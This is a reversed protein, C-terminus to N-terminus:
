KLKKLKKELESPTLPLSDFYGQMTNCGSDALIDSQEKSEVGEGILHLGLANCLAVIAKVIQRDEESSVLDAVFRQDIKVEDVAWEKLDRLSSLGMGFDDISIQFGANKIRQMNLKVEDVNDFLANESVEICLLEPSIGHKKTVTNILESMQTSRLHQLSINVSMRPIKFGADLWLRLQACCEELVFAEVQNILTSQEAVKIFETPPILGHQPHRWRLLVELGSLKNTKYDFQPQYVLFLLKEKLAHRIGQEMDLWQHAISNLGATYFEFSNRGNQKARYMALDAYLLLSEPDKTDDPYVSVGVSVTCYVREGHIDFPPEFATIIERVIRGGDQPSAGEMVMVFDDGGLRCLIDTSRACTSIREVAKILLADGADHGLKDNVKKFYDLDFFLLLVQKKARKAKSISHELRQRFLNRNPLGTLEDHTALFEVRSHQSVVETVDRGIGRYGIFIGKADLLPKGSVRMYLADGAEGKSQVVIDVLKKNTQLLKLVENSTHSHSATSFDTLTSFKFNESGGRVLSINHRADSEWFWEASAEAFDRYRAESELLKRREEDLELIKKDLKQRTNDTSSQDPSSNTTKLKNTDVTM